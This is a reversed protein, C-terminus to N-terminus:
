NAFTDFIVPLAWYAFQVGPIKQLEEENLVFEKHEGLFAKEKEYANVEEVLRLCRANYGYSKDSLIFAVTQVVEGSLEEFARAGLHILSM